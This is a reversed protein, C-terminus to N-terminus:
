VRSGEDEDESNAKQCGNGRFMVFESLFDIKENVKPTQDQYFGRMFFGLRFEFSDVM